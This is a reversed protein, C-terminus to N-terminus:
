GAPHVLLLRTVMQAAAVLNEEAEALAESRSCVRRVIPILARFGIDYLAQTDHGIVGGFGIAPVAADAAIRAVGSLTKGMASQGDIAGEGTFVVDAKAIAEELGVAQCVLQVGPTFEAHLFGALAWGLGGAAGAGAQSATALLDGIHHTDAGIVEASALARLMEELRAVEGPSAGKQPGFIAAAGQDGLLENEVDCAARVSVQGVRGDLERVDIAACSALESPIPQLERANADLFRVGLEALMGAGGDSTASGGLGLVLERAGADLSARILQGLGRTNARMIDRRHDPVHELGIASAAEIIASQTTAGDTGLKETLGFAAELKDGLPGAVRVTKVTADLACSLADLFGEGGDSLPILDCCIDRDVSHVGAALAQAAQVATLSEKFSDPAIVIRM